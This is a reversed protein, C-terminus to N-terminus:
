QDEHREHVGIQERDGIGDFVRQKGASDCVDLADRGRDPHRQPEVPLAAHGEVAEM